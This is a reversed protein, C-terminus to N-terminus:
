SAAVRLIEFKSVTEIEAVDRFGDNTEGDNVIAELLWDTDLIRKITENKHSSKKVKLAEQYCTTYLQM